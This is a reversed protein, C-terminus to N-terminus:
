STRADIVDFSVLRKPQHLDVSRFTKYRKIDNISRCALYDIEVNCYVYCHTEVVDIFMYTLLQIDDPKNTQLIKLM